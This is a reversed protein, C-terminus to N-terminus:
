EELAYAIAQDMTMCCGESWCTIYATEDLRTHLWAIAIAYENELRTIGILSIGLGERVAEAAGFLCAVREPQDKAQAILALSELGHTIYARQGIRKFVLLCEQNYREAEALNGARLEIDALETTVQSLIVPERIERALEIATLAHARAVDWEETIQAIRALVLEGLVVGFSLGGEQSSRLSEEASARASEIDGRPLYVYTSLVGHAYSL